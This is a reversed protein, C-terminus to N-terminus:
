QVFSVLISREEQKGVRISDEQEERSGGGEGTKRADEFNPFVVRGEQGLPLVFCIFGTFSLM